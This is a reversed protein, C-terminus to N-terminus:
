TYIEGNIKHIKQKIILLLEKQNRINKGIIFSPVPNHLYFWGYMRHFFTIKKAAVLYHGFHVKGSFIDIISDWPIFIKFFLFSSISIGDDLIWITPFYNILGMGVFWGVVVIWIVLCVFAIRPNDYWSLKPTIEYNGISCILLIAIGHTILLIIIGGVKQFIIGLHDFLHYDFKQM